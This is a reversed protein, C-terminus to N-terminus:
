RPLSSDGHREGANNEPLRAWRVPEASLHALAPIAVISLRGLRAARQKAAERFRARAETSTRDAGNRESRAM